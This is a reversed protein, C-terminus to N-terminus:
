TILALTVITYMLAMYQKLYYLRMAEDNRFIIAIAVLPVLGIIVGIIYEIDIKM